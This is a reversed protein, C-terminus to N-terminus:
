PQLEGRAHLTISLKMVYVNASFVKVCASCSPLYNMYLMCRGVTNGLAPSNIFHFCNGNGLVTAYVLEDGDLNWLWAIGFPV